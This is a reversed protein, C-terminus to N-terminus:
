PSQGPAFCDLDPLLAKVGSKQRKEEMHFAGRHGLHEESNELEGM